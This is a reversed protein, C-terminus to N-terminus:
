MLNDEEHDEEMREMHGFWQSVCQEAEGALERIVGTRKRMKNRVQYM